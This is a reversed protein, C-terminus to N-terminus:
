WPTLVRPGTDTIAVTFECHATLAEDACFVSWGDASRRIWPSGASVMPELAFVMGSALKPGTGPTGYNAIMPPEHLHRGVGHGRLERLVTFGADEAVRQVAHSVDGLHGGPLCREVGAALAAETTALLARAQSSSSGV